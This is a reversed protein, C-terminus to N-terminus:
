PRHKGVFNLDSWRVLVKNRRTGRVMGPRAHPCTLLRVKAGVAFVITPKPAKRVPLLARGAGTM